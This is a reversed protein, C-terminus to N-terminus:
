DGVPSIIVRLRESSVTAGWFDLELLEKTTRVVVRAEEAAVDLETDRVVEDAM